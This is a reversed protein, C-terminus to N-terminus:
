PFFVARYTPSVIGLLRHHLEGSLIAKLSEVIPLDVANNGTIAPQPKWVIQRPSGNAGAQPQLSHICLALLQTFRVVHSDALAPRQTEFYYQLLAQDIWMDLVNIPQPMNLYVIIPELCVLEAISYCSMNNLSEIAESNGVVQDLNGPIPAPVVAGTAWAVQRRLLGGLFNVNTAIVFGLAFATVTVTTGPQSFGSAIFGGVLAGLLLAIGAQFYTSPYIDLTRYKKLILVVAGAYAGFFGSVVLWQASPLKDPNLALPDKATAGLGHLAFYQILLALTGAALSFLALEWPNCSQRFRLSLLRRFERDPNPLGPFYVAFLHNRQASDEIQDLRIRLNFVIYLAATVPFSLALVWILTNPSLPWIPVYNSLPDLALVVVILMLYVSGVRDFSIRLWDRVAQFDM